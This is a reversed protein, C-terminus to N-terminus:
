GIAAIYPLNRYRGAHGLGYGVLYSKRTEFGVYDPAVSVKKHHVKEILAAMRVSSPNQGQISNLLFDMTVGTELVGDVLLVDKGHLEVGPWYSIQRIPIGHWTRDHVVSRLFHCTVPVKLMRILDAVFVFSNELQGVLHLTRGYYDRDISHAMRAVRKHIRTESFVVRLQEFQEPQPKKGDVRPRGSAATLRPM